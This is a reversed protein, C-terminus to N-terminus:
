KEVYSGKVSTCKICRKELKRMGELFFEKRREAFYADAATKLENIPPLNQAGLKKKLKKFLFFDCPALDPSYSPHRLETLGCEQIVAEINCAKYVKCNESLILNKQRWLSPRKL